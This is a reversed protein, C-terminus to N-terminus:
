SAPGEDTPDAPSQPEHGNPCAFWGTHSGDGNDRSLYQREAGCVDCALDIFGFATSIDPLTMTM